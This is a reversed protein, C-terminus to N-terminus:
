LPASKSRALEEKMGSQEYDKFLLPSYGEQRQERALAPELGVGEM